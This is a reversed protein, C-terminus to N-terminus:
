GLNANFKTGVQALSAPLIRQVKPNEAASIEFLLVQNQLLVIKHGDPISNQFWAVILGPVPAASNLQLALSWDPTPFHAVLLPQCVYRTGTPISCADPQNQTFM